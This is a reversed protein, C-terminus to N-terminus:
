RELLVLKNSVEKCKVKFRSIIKMALDSETVAGYLTPIFLIKAFPLIKEEFVEMDRELDLSASAVNAAIVLKYSSEYCNPFLEARVSAKSQLYVGLEKCREFRGIECIRVDSYGFLSLTHGMQGMGGGVELIKCDFGFNSLVYRVMDRDNKDLIEGKLLRWYYYRDRKLDTLGKLFTCIRCNINKIGNNEM